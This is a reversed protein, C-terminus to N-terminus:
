INILKPLIEVYKKIKEEKSMLAYRPSPSPLTILETQPYEEILRKFVKKYNNEVFRSTFFIKKIQHTQMIETLKPNYVINTLNTDLSNNRSRECQYIIDAIAIGLKSFLEERSSRNPLTTSYVQEIISWFQNRKSGYYWDYQPEIGIGKATFSGLILFKINQPIFIEFPHTEIM